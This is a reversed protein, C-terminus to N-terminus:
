LMTVQSVKVVSKYNEDEEPDFKKGLVMVKSRPMMGCSDLTAEYETLNKGKFLIKQHAQLIHTVSEIQFISGAIVIIYSADSDCILNICHGHCM